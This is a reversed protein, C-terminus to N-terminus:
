AGAERKIEALQEVARKTAKVIMAHGKEAQDWTSYRRMEEHTPGGFVMTEFLLPPGDGWNHDLGLFVTSVTVKDNIRTHDVRRDQEQMWVAWTLMDAPQPTKDPGLIYHQARWKM